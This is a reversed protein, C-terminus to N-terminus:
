RSPHTAQAVFHPHIRSHYTVLLIPIALWAIVGTLPHHLYALTISLPAVILGSFLHFRARYIFASAGENAQLDIRWALYAASAAMAVGNILMISSFMIVASADTPFNGLLASAFPIVSVFALQALTLLIYGTNCGRLNAFVLHQEHWIVSIFLFSIAWGVFHPVQKALHVAMGEGVVVEPIKLELVLLTLAIAIVGDSLAGLREARFLEHVSSAM